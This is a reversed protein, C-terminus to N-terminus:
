FENMQVRPREISIHWDPIEGLQQPFAGTLSSNLKEKINAAERLVLSCYFALASVLSFKEQLCWDMSCIINWGYSLFDTHVVSYTSKSIKFLM